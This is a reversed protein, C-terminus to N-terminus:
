ELEPHHIKEHYLDQSRRHRGFCSSRAPRSLQALRSAARDGPVTKKATVVARVPQDHSRADDPRRARNRNKIRSLSCRSNSIDSESMCSATSGALTLAPISDLFSLLPPFSFLLLSRKCRQHFFCSVSLLSRITLRRSISCGAPRLCAVVNCRVHLSAAFLM